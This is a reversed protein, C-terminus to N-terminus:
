KVRVGNVFAAEDGDSRARWEVDHALLIGTTADFLRSVTESFAGANRTRALVVFTAGMAVAKPRIAAIDLVTFADKMTGADLRLFEANPVSSLPAALRDELQAEPEILAAGASSAGDALASPATGDALAMVRVTAGSAALLAIKKIENEFEPHGLNPPSPMTTPENVADLEIDKAEAEKAVDDFLISGRPDPHPPADTLVIVQRRDAKWDFETAASYLAEIEAEPIDGGGYVVASKAIGEIASIDSTYPYKKTIYEDPWYDKYLVVGIRYQAFGSVRERLLAGLNHRIDEFYPEMSATTDLCLVLDLSKGPGSGILGAIRASPRDDKPTPPPPPPPPPPAPPTPSVAEPPPPPVIQAQLQPATSITAPETTLPIPKAAIAIQYPNDLFAGRYDAFRKEFARINIYTGRGVAVTGSRSWSYGYILVPPILIHFAMGFGADPLPTSSILSYLKSTAPLPKGNLLRTEDGNVDNHEMARYAFNDAKMAPDKTSETLLVSAMGPKARIFLDYGGDNRALIRVDEPGISLGKSGASPGLAFVASPVLLAILVAVLNAHM